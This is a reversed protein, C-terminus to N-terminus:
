RCHLPTFAKGIFPVFSRQKYYVTVSFSSCSEFDLYGKRMDESFPVRLCIVRFNSLYFLYKLMM